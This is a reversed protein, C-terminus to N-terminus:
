WGTGVKILRSQCKQFLVKSRWKRFLGSNESGDGARNVLSSVADHNHVRRKGAMSVHQQISRLAIM